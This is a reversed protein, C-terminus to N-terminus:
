SCTWTKPVKVYLTRDLIVQGVLIAGWLLVALAVVHALPMRRKWSAVMAWLGALVVGSAAGLYLVLGLGCDSAYPWQTMAVGLAAGLLVRLWAGLAARGTTPRSPPQATPRSTPVPAPAAPQKAMLRDIEALEKDWDRPPPSGSAPPTM